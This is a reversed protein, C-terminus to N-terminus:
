QAASQNEGKGGPDVGLPLMEGGCFDVEGSGDEFDSNEQSFCISKWFFSRKYEQGKTRKNEQEGFFPFDSFRGLFTWRM